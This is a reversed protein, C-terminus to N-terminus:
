SLTIEGTFSLLSITNDEFDRTYANYMSTGYEFSSSSSQDMSSPNGLTHHNGHMHFSHMRPGMMMMRMMQM